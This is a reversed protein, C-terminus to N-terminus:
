SDMLYGIKLEMWSEMATVRQHVTLIAKGTVWQQVMPDDRQRGMKLAMLCGLGPVWQQVKGSDKLNGLELAM